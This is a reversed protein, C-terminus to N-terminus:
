IYTPAGTCQRARPGIISRLRCQNTMALHCEVSRSLFVEVWFTLNNMIITHNYSKHTHTHESQSDRWEKRCTYKRSNQIFYEHLIWWFETPVLDLVDKIM